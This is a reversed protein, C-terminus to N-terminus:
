PLCILKGDNVTVPASPALDDSERVHWPSMVKSIQWWKDGQLRTCQQKFLRSPLPDLTKLGRSQLPSTHFGPIKFTVGQSVPTIGGKNMSGRLEVISPDQTYSLCTSTEVEFSATETMPYWQPGWDQAWGFWSPIWMEAKQTAMERPYLIYYCIIVFYLFHTTKAPALSWPARLQFIGEKKGEKSGEKRWEKRDEERGEKRGEKRESRFWSFCVGLPTLFFVRLLGGWFFRHAVEPVRGPLVWWFWAECDCLEVLGLAPAKTPTAQGNTNYFSGSTHLYFESATIQPNSSHPFDIQKTCRVDWM